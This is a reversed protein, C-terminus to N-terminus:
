ICYLVPAFLSLRKAAGVELVLFIMIIIIIIDLSHTMNIIITWCDYDHFISVGHKGIEDPFSSYTQLQYVTHCMGRLYSKDQCSLHPDIIKYIDFCYKPLDM